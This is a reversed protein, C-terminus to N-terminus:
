EVLLNKPIQCLMGTPKHTVIVLDGLDCRIIVDDGQKLTVVDTFDENVKTVKDNFGTDYLYDYSIYESVNFDFMHPQYFAQPVSLQNLDDIYENIYDKDTYTKFNDIKYRVDNALDNLKQPILDLQKYLHTICQQVLTEKEINIHEVKSLLEEMQINYQIKQDNFTNLYESLNHQADDYKLKLQDYKERIEPDPEDILIKHTEEIDRCIEFYKDYLERLAAKMTENTSTYQRYSEELESINKQFTKEIKGYKKLFTKEIESLMDMTFENGTFTQLFLDVLNKLSDNQKNENSSQNKKFFLLRRKEEAKPISNILNTTESQVSRFNDCIENVAKSVSDMIAVSIGMSEKIVDMATSYDLYEGM